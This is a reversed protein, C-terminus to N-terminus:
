FVVQSIQNIGKQKATNLAHQAEQILTESKMEPRLSALGASISVPIQHVLIHLPEASVRSKIREMVGLAGRMDCEMLCILYQNSSWQAIISDSQRLALHMKSATHALIQEFIKAGYKQLLEDSKDLGAMALCMSREHRYARAIERPLLEDMFERIYVGTSPNKLRVTNMSSIMIFAKFVTLPRAKFNAM